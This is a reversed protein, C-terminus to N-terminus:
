KCKKLKDILQQWDTIKLHEFSPKVTLFEEESFSNSIPSKYWVPFMGAKNAGEIDAVLNDGCYWIDKAGLMARSLAIQAMLPNPKRFVYESSVLVFEFRNDPFNNEIRKCLARQSYSLNSIVGIRIGRDNLYDLLKQANPMATDKVANFWFADELEDSNLSLDIELYQFLTRQFKMMSVEVGSQQANRLSVFLDNGIDNIQKATYNHPNSKAYSLIVENAFVNDRSTKYVLTHGYDFLIMKPAKM